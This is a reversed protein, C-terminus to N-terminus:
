KENKMKSEQDQDQNQAIERWGWDKRIKEKGRRGEDGIKEEGKIEM